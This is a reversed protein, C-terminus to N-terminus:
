ATKELRRDVREEEIWINKAGPERVGDKLTLSWTECGYLVVLLFITGYIRIKLTKSLLRSSLLNQISHCCANGSNWRRKIYEQILNQNRVTTVLYTFQAVSEFSRNATKIDDNQGANQHRSLLM